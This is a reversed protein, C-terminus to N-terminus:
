DLWSSHFHSRTAKINILMSTAQHHSMTPIGVVFTMLQGFISRIKWQPQLQPVSFHNDHVLGNAHNRLENVLWIRWFFFFLSFIFSCESKTHCTRRKSRGKSTMWDFFTWTCSHWSKKDSIIKFLGGIGGSLPSQPLRQLQRLQTM